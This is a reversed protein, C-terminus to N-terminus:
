EYFMELYYFYYALTLSSKITYFTDKPNKSLCPQVYQHIFFNIQRKTFVNRTVCEVLIKKVYLAFTIRFDQVRERVDSVVSIQFRHTIFTMKNATKSININKLKNFRKQCVSLFKQKQASTLKQSKTLFSLEFLLVVARNFSVLNPGLFFDDGIYRPGFFRLVKQHVPHAHFQWIIKLYVLM